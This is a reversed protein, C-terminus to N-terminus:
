EQGQMSTSTRSHIPSLSNPRSPLGAGQNTTSLRSQRASPRAMGTQVTSAGGTDSDSAGLTRGDSVLCGIAAFRDVHQVEVHLPLGGGFTAKPGIIPEMHAGVATAHM